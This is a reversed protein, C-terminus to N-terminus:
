FIELRNLLDWVQNIMSSYTKIDYDNVYPMDLSNSYSIVYDWIEKLKVKNLLWEKEEKEFDSKKDFNINFLMNDWEKSSKYMFQMVQNNLAKYSYKWEWDSPIKFVLSFSKNDFEHKITIIKEITSVEISGWIVNVRVKVNSSIHWDEYDVLATNKDIWNIKTVYWKWWLVAPIPSLESINDKIKQEYIDTQLSLSVMNKLYSLLSYKKTTFDTTELLSDIKSVLRDFLVVKKVNDLKLSYQKYINEWEKKYRFEFMKWLCVWNYKVWVKSAECSNGYNKWDVWCVPSYIMPCILVDEAANVQFFVLSLFLWVFIKKM